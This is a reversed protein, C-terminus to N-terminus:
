PSLLSNIMSMILMQSFSETILSQAYKSHWIDNKTFQRNKDNGLYEIVCEEVASLVDPIVKQDFFRGNKSKRVDFNHQKFFDEIQQKM